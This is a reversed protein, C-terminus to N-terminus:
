STDSKWESRVVSVLHAIRRNDFNNSIFFIIIDSQFHQISHPSNPFEVKQGVRGEPCPCLHLTQNQWAIESTSRGPPSGIYDRSCPSRGCALGRLASLDVFLWESLARRQILAPLPLPPRLICFKLMFNICSYLSTIVTQHLLFHISVINVFLILIIVARRRGRCRQRRQRAAKQGTPEM